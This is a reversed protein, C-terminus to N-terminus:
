YLTASPGENQFFNIKDLPYEEGNGWDLKFCHVIIDEPRLEEAQSEPQQFGVLDERSIKNRNDKLIVCDGVCKYLERRDIRRM